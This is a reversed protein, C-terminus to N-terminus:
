RGEAAIKAMRRAVDPTKGEQRFKDFWSEELGSTPEAEPALLEDDEDSPGFLGSGRRGGSAIGAMRESQEASFGAGIFRDEFAERLELYGPGHKEALLAIAADALKGAEEPTEGENIFRDRITEYLRLQTQGFKSM